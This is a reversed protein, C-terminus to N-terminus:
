LSKRKFYTRDGFYWVVCGIVLRTFVEYPETVPMQSIVLYATLGAWVPVLMKLILPRVSARMLELKENM